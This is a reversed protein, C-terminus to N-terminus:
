YEYYWGKLYPNLASLDDFYIRIPSLYEQPINILYNEEGCIITLTKPLLYGEYEFYDVLSSEIKANEWDKKFQPAEAIYIPIYLRLTTGELDISIPFRENEADYEMLGVKHKQLHSYSYSYNCYFKVHNKSTLCSNEDYYGVKIYSDIVDKCLKTFKSQSETQLRAKYDADKEFEGKKQWLNFYETIKDYIESLECECNTYKANTGTGKYLGSHKTSNQQNTQSPLDKDVGKVETPKETQQSQTINHM